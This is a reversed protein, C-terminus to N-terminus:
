RASEETLPVPKGGSIEKFRQIEKGRILTVPQSFTMYGPTIAEWDDQYGAVNLFSGLCPMLKNITTNATIIVRIGNDTIDIDRATTRSACSGQWPVVVWSRNVQVCFGDLGDPKPSNDVQPQWKIVQRVYGNKKLENELIRSVDAYTKLDLNFLGWEGFRQSWYDKENETLKSSDACVSRSGSLSGALVAILTIFIAATLFLNKM